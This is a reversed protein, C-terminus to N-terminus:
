KKKKFGKTAFAFPNKVARVLDEAKEKARRADSSSTKRKRERARADGAKGLHLAM